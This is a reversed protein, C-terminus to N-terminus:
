FSEIIQELMRRELKRSILDGARNIQTVHWVKIAPKYHHHFYNFLKKEDETKSIFQLQEVVGRSTLPTDEQSPNLLIVEGLIEVYKGHELTPHANALTKLHIKLTGEPLSYDQTINTIQVNELFFEDNTARYVKGILRCKGYHLQTYDEELTLEEILVFKHFNCYKPLNLNEPSCDIDLGGGSAVPEEEFSM